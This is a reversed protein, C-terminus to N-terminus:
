QFDAYPDQSDEYDAWRTPQRPSGQHSHASTHTSSSESPSHEEEEDEASLNAAQQLLQKALKKLEDAKSLSSPSSISKKPTPQPKKVTPQPIQPKLQLTPSVPKPSALHAPSSSTVSFEEYFQSLVRETKFKDWWKVLLQRLVM